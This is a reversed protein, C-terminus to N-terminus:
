KTIFMFLFLWSEGLASNKTIYRMPHTFYSARMPLPQHPIEFIIVPPGFVHQESIMHYQSMSPYKRNSIILLWPSRHFIRISFRATDYIMSFYEFNSLNEKKRNGNFCHKAHKLIFIFKLIYQLDFAIKEYKM